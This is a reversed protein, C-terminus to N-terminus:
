VAEDEFGGKGVKVKLDEVFSINAVGSCCVRHAVHRAEDMLLSCSTDTTFNM